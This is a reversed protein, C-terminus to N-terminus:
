SRGGVESRRGGVESRPGGAGYEQWIRCTGETSVMCAGVPNEPLCERGFLRCDTPSKVGSMIDGCVCQQSLLSPAGDWVASLDITFNRRADM